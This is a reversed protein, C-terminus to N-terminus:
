SVIRPPLNPDDAVFQPSPGPPAASAAQSESLDRLRALIEHPALQGQAAVVLPRIQDLTKRANRVRTLSPLEEVQVATRLHCKCTPGALINLLLFLGFLGAISLLIIRGASEAPLLALAAFFAIILILAINGILGEATRRIMFAQIDAYRFRKYYERAGDWEVLLLHDNGRWLRVRRGLLLLVFIGIVFFLLFLAWGPVLQRHGTGPLRTYPRTTKAAM